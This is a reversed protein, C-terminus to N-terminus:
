EQRIFSGMEDNPFLTTDFDPNLKKFRRQFGRYLAPLETTKWMQIIRAPIRDQM